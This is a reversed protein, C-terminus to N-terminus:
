KILRMVTDPRLSSISEINTMGSRPFISDINSMINQLRDQGVLNSAMINDVEVQLKKLRTVDGNILRATNEQNADLLKGNIAENDFGALVKKGEFTVSNLINQREQGGKQFDARLQEIGDRIIQNRTLSSQVDRFEAEMADLRTNIRTGISISDTKIESKKKNSNNEELERQSNIKKATGLIGDISIKM